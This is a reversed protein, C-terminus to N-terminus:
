DCRLRHTREEIWYSCVVVDSGNRAGPIVGFWLNPFGAERRVGEYPDNFRTYIWATVQLRLDDEPSKTEIWLDLRELFGDLRWRNESDPPM